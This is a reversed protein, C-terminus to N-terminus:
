FNLPQNTSEHVRVWTESEPNLRKREATVLPLPVHISDGHLAGVLCDTKGAMAAHVANRAMIDSLLADTCNASVSRISYSPDFYKINIEMGEAAFFEKIQRAIFVGIDKLKKNGSKDVGQEDGHMLEQGAGEAIVVVAHSKALMRKKLLDLLGRKGRLKFPMEPVLTFNVEQSAITAGAAIFGSERGMVKVIGIGGIACKAETHACDIVKQVEELATAFGFSPSVFNIDNDITKPIGIAVIGARRSKSGVAIDHCGRQTGDGGVCFLMNIGAEQLYDLIVDTDQPGRSTGLITGGERHIHDVMAGTLHIPQAALAPNLGRYGDRIGLIDSIGYRSLQNVVSRVVNNLGPCIGGCTVIAARVDMPKFYIKERAGAKEFFIDAHEIVGTKVSTDHRVRAADPTFNGTGDGYVNSLPLPSTVKCEGINDIITKAPILM